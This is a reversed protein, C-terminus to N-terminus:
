EYGKKSVNLLSAIVGSGPYFPIRKLPSPDMYTYITRFLFNSCNGAFNEMEGDRRANLRIMEASKGNVDCDTSSNWEM